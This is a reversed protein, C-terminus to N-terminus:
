QTSTSAASPEQEYEIELRTGSETAILNTSTILFASKQRKKLPVIADDDSGSDQAGDDSDDFDDSALDMEEPDFDMENQVPLYILAMAVRVEFEFDEIDDIEDDSDGMVFETEHQFHSSESALQGSRVESEEEEESEEIKDMVEDFAKQNLNVIDEYMDGYAGQKLRALLEKEISQELRAAAEAKLERKAERREIKKKIGIL